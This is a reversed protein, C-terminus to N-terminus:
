VAFGNVLRKVYFAEAYAAFVAQGRFVATAKVKNLYFNENKENQSVHCALLEIKKTIEFEDLVTYFNPIFDFANPTEYQVISIKRAAMDVANSLAVHDPHTDHTYTTFVIDIGKTEVISEVLDRIELVRHTLKGDVLSKETAVIANDIYEFNEFGNLFKLVNFQEVRRKAYEWDTEQRSVVTFYIMNNRNELLKVMTGMTSIEVDDFHAGTFLYKKTTKTM